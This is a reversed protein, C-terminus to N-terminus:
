QGLNLRVSIGFQHTTIPFANSTKFRSLNLDYFLKANIRKSVQYDGSLKVNIVKQGATVQNINEVIRRIITINDRISVDGRLELNSVPSTRRTGVKIFKLRLNKIIYGTGIVWETGKTETVQSNTLSLAVNRDKKFEIKVNMSNKLKVDFGVLPAFQESITIAGIQQEPLLNGTVDTPIRDPNDAIEQQRLLNTTIASISYTSRYGHNLLVSNFYKKVAKMKSLGDYTIQWNPLPTSKIPELDFNNIDRGSYAALFAPILVQQSSLGFNRYYSGSDVVAQYGFASGEASAAFDTAQRRSTVLTNQIFQDYAASRYDPATNSEFATNLTFYSISFNQTTFQNQSVFDDAEVDFRFFETSNFSNSRNATLVIRLSPAPEVTARFNMTESYTKSYQQNQLTSRTLWDNDVARQRIDAQDGVTFLFGPAFGNGNDMGLVGPRARFGPLLTGESTSFNGSVNRVMLMTKVTGDLIKRGISLEKDKDEEEEEEEPEVDTRNSRRRPQQSRKPKNGQMVKKFYPIKGYLATMNLTNNLQVQMNNQITNGFNLGDPDYWEDEGGVLSNATWDYDGSYRASVNTFDLYPLKNIPVQWNINTTQHYQTPRGLRMLNDWITDRNRQEGAAADAIEDIRSTMRANFDLKLSKTLDWNMAYQRNFFFSKNYTKPLEFSLNDINRGQIAHYSRDLTAIASFSTPYYNFNFEKVIKLKEDQLWKVKKFPEVPEPRTAYTYNLSGRHTRLSDYTTNINRRFTQNFSYSVSFNEIDYVQPKKQAKKGTRDKRVNTFNISKRETYDQAIQRLTDRDEQNALNEVARDFEIDPDLPNFQPNRWEESLGYYMPIRLGIDKNFFKGLEFSTQLDYAYIDEKQRENVKQDLSGFGVTSMRGSLAVNAFDAFQAAVRANAAWGGRQDFETLRLENVWVEASKPLGDDTLDSALKRKPNRVGIMMTRVNGLNPAGKITIRGNPTTYPDTNNKTPDNRYLQDRALKAEKLENLAFDFENAQPWVISPENGSNWPTVVLPIEYQYFNETYDSGLRIFASIDGNSLDQSFDGASEAHIFMKLRNYLRMDFNINRFVARADGDKLNVVRLSLSQENQQQSSATGFLVQRDIGPPLVYSVNDRNANQEINVATVEFLTNDPDDINIGDGFENLDFEFRRWEGRILELRAFRVVVPQSFGKLFMRIFRISRFDNIPGIREDPNFIPVKFQIWRAPPTTGDPQEPVIVENLDIIDTVYNRGIEWNGGPELPVRYQYYTETKSLTQDRNIDEIDPLNSAFGVIGNVSASNSNGEPNNFRKYRDLINANAVDLSQGRYYQFNDGSPDVNANVYAQSNTGLNPANEIRQLYSQLGAEPVWTREAPDNLLDYGIDQLGRIAPDNDFAAVPPRVVPTYGWFTSDLQSLDGTAPIGNEIAQRGDKLIDESISGLNIFLEGGDTVGDLFPDLIWFQIFEINQEEFNTNNLDRMIGAWRSGPDRLSGDPNLGASVGTAEVDYNYPGKEDPYYALDMLSINQPLSQDQQLNPFVEDILVQRVYPGSRLAPDNKINDPLGTGGDQHFLPDITYWALRARNYGSEIGDISAEPFLTPQNQPVSALRWARPDNITISTQSSEFDDLYTTEEGGIKIGRPSGPVLQAFEGSVTITSPAKTDIFPIKDTARTLYPADNSYSGNMGWISNAIPEDGINSKQTLPRETLRVVTAGVNAKDNFRYEANLGMFTRTQFNFLSNNEFDVKIPIGSNLIGENIITVKGFNYDVRYDQNEVLANGGASVTVSGRPINLANLFIESSSSSKYQGRMLFKNLQTENQAKFRTSDYLEQFVYQERAEETTLKGALTTGFPELVPFFIRGNQVNITVNPVFDFFGDPQPDNNNNLRDLELTRILLEKGLNTEPLFPVPTGTEDDRYLIDLRFDEANVQYAGLSYVNKMMLDWLPIKVDLIISKLMKVILNQPPAVGDTSFEGVQYTKGGATFQFAVALVEDQNLASSLSIYGLQPHFNFESPKLRRANALETYETAEQFGVSNLASNVRGIDRVGPYDSTVADPGLANNENDPFGQAPFFRGFIDPGPRGANSNRYAGPGNEEGLDALAVINRTDQTEQRTNTVWVEVKTIQVPSTIIPMNSLFREYNDRFYHSLFFHKNAEYQDGWIEFDTTTAGGQVNISSTQSRQESFVGTVYLKGFQFQGKVGFLSQAGSILSSNLPLSVNGLEIKKIIDDEDGTYEVKVQNEFSFTAETDYNTTIKLKRGIKGTINMQIRQDFDFNFTSRNNEPILPNDVKQIRGGFRLEAYGQPRIDILNGGFLRDFLESNVQIQPIISSSPDRGEAAAAEESQTKAQWYDEAQKKAVYERYEEPTMFMPPKANLNGIKQTVIYQGTETDYVVEENYNDPDEMYLGGSEDDFPYPLVSDPDSTDLPVNILDVASLRIIKKGTFGSLSILVFSLGLFVLIELKGFKM